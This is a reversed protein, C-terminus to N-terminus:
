LCFVKDPSLTAASAFKAARGEYGRRQEKLPLLPHTSRTLTFVLLKAKSSSAVAETFSAIVKDIATM